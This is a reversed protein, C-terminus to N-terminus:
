SVKPSIKPLEKRSEKAADEQSSASGNRDGQKFQLQRKLNASVAKSQTVAKYVKAIFSPPVTKGRQHQTDPKSKPVLSSDSWLRPRAKPFMLKTHSAPPKEQQGSPPAKGKSLAFKNSSVSPSSVASSTSVTPSPKSPTPHSPRQVQEGMRKSSCLPSAKVVPLNSSKQTSAQRSMIKSRVSSLDPKKVKPAVAAAKVVGTTRTTGSVPQQKIGDAKSSGQDGPEETFPSENLTPLCFTKNGLSQVPTSTQVNSPDIDEPGPVVFTKDGATMLQGSGLTNSHLLKVVSNASRCPEPTFPSGRAKAVVNLASQGACEELFYTQNNPSLLDDGLRLHKVDEKPTGGPGWYTLADHPMDLDSPTAPSGASEALYSISFVQDSDQLCFSNSRLVRDMSGDSNCRLVRDISGDSSSFSSPLSSSDPTGLRASSLLPSSDRSSGDVSGHQIYSGNQLDTIDMTVNLPQITTNRNVKFLTPSVPPPSSSCTPDGEGSNGDSLCEFMEVDPPSEVSRSSLSSTSRACDPSPNVPSPLDNGNQEDTLLPFCKTKCQVHVMETNACMKVASDM